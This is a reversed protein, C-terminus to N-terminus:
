GEDGATGNYLIRGTAQSIIVLFSPMLMPPSTKLIFQIYWLPENPKNFYINVGLPMEEGVEIIEVISSFVADKVIHIADQKTIM